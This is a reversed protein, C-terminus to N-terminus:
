ERAADVRARADALLRRVGTRCTADLPRRASRATGDVLALARGLRDSARGLLVARRGADKTAFARRALRRASTFRRKIASPPRTDRCAPIALRRRLACTVGAAGEAYAWACFGGADCGAPTTCPDDDDCAGSCPVCHADHADRPLCWADAGDPGLRVVTVDYLTGARATTGVAAVGGLDDPVLASAGIRVDNAAAGVVPHTWRAEGAAGHLAFVTFGDGAHGVAFPNGAADLGFDAVGHGDPMPLTRDWRVAGDGGALKVIRGAGAAGVDGAADLAIRWRERVTVLDPQLV